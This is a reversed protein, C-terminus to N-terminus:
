RTRAKRKKKDKPRPYFKKNGKLENFLIGTNRKRNMEDCLAFCGKKENFVIWRHWRPDILDVLKLKIRHANVHKLFGFYSNLSHVMEEAKDKCVNKNMIRIKDYANAVSTNSIYKRDFRVVTGTFKVGKKYHQVYVKNPHLTLGLRIKLYARIVPIESLIDEKNRAVIYFDDVYRGYWKYKRLMIMDFIHLYFNAFCQSTLNGIPEGKDDGCTTLSKEKPLQELLKSNGKITCNYQPCAMVVKEVLYLLVEKDDGHYRENIYKRLMNWLKEKVISMFFGKLDFKGIYCDVTGNESCEIIDQQLCNVGYQTGKEKRCNFNHDIFDEEFLSELRMMIIHHIIRDRFDAAFVERLKPRTVAFRVSKGIEYRRENVEMWLQILNSEYNAEFKTANVTLRKHKRCEYYAFFFDEM